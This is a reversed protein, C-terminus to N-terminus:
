TFVEGSQNANHNEKKELYNLKFLILVRGGLVLVGQVLGVPHQSHHHPEQHHQPARQQQQDAVLM